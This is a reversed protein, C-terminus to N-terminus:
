FSNKVKRNKLAETGKTAITKKFKLWNFLKEDKKALGMVRKLDKKIFRVASFPAFTAYIILKVDELNVKGGIVSSELESLRKILRALLKNPLIKLKVKAGGLLMTGLLYADNEDYRIELSLFYPALFSEARRLRIIQKVEKSRM